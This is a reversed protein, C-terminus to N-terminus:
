CPTSTIINALSEEVAGTFWALTDSDIENWAEIAAELGLQDRHVALDHRICEHFAQFDSRLERVEDRLPGRTTATLGPQALLAFATEIYIPVAVLVTRGVVRRDHDDVLQEAM